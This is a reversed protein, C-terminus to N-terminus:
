QRKYVAICTNSTVKTSWFSPVTEGEAYLMHNAPPETFSPLYAPPTDKSSDGCITIWANARADEETHWGFLESIAQGMTNAKGVSLGEMISDHMFIVNKDSM